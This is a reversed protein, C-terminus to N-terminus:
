SENEPINELVTELMEKLKIIMRTPIRLRGDIVLEMVEKDPYKPFVQGYTFFLFEPSAQLEVHNVFSDTYQMSKVREMKDESLKAKSM